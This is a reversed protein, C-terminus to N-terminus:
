PAIAELGVRWVLAYEDYTGNIQTWAGVFRDCSREFGVAVFGEALAEADTLWGLAMREVSVVAAKGIQHKGRGPCIAVEQGVRYACKEAFWPSRPNTSVLRRTVTKSGAMVAAALHPQFIM